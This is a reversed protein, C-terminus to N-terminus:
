KPNKIWSDARGQLSRAAGRMGGAPGTFAGMPIVEPFCELICLTLPKFVTHEKM